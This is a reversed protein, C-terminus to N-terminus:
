EVQWFQSTKLTGHINIQQSENDAFYKGGNKRKNEMPAM